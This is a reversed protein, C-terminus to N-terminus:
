SMRKGSIDTQSLRRALNDMLSFLIEVNYGILFAILMPSYEATLAAQDKSFVMGSSIGMVGGLLIRLNYDLCSKVTFTEQKFSQYISRLVLTFAGLCGLLLPLIYGELLDIMHGASIRAGFFLYNSIQLQRESTLKDVVKQYRAIQRTVQRSREKTKLQEIQKQAASLQKHYIFDDYESFHIQPQIGLRWVTNWQYLFIRNSEFKQGTEKEARTLSKLQLKQEESLSDQPLSTLQSIKQQLDSQSEFLKDSKNLVDLGIMYYSQLMVTILILLCIAMGYYLPVRKVRKYHGKHQKQWFGSPATEKVSTLTAPKIQEALACYCQWFRSEEAVSVKGNETFAQKTTLIDQVIDPPIKMGKRCLYSLILDVEEIACSLESEYDHRAKAVINDPKKASQEPSNKQSGESATDTTTSTM